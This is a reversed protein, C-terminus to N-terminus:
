RVDVTRSVYRSNGLADTVRLAVVHRGLSLSDINFSFAEGTSDYILDEPLVLQWTEGGDVRYRLEMIPSLADTARAAVTVHGADADFAVEVEGVDPPSNDVVVTASRRRAQKDQGAM